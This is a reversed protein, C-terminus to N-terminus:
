PWFVANKVRFDANPGYPSFVFFAKEWFARMARNKFKKHHGQVYNKLIQCWHWSRDIKKENQGRRPRHPHCPTQSSSSSQGPSPSCCNVAAPLGSHLCQLTHYVFHQVPYYVCQSLTNSLHMFFRNRDCPLTKATIHFCQVTYYVFLTCSQIHFPKWQVSKCQQLYALWPVTTFVCVASLFIRTYFVTFHMKMKM